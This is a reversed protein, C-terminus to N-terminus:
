TLDGDTGLDDAPSDTWAAGNGARDTLLVRADGATIVSGTILVGAKGPGGEGAADAEDALAVGIEIAEDLRDAATVRDAGFVAEAVAALTAVPMSRTSSNTTV